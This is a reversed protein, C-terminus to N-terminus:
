LVTIVVFHITSMLHGADARWLSRGDGSEHVDYRLDPLGHRWKLQGYKYEEGHVVEDGKWGVVQGPLILWKSGLAM